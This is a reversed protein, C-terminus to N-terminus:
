KGAVPTRDLRRLTEAAVLGFVISGLFNTLSTKFPIVTLHPLRLATGAAYMFFWFIVGFFLGKLLYYRSTVGFYLYAFLIGIFASFALQVLQAFLEESLFVPKRGFIMIGAWDLYRMTSFNSYYMIFNLIDMAIGAVTGTILGNVFRDKLHSVEAQNLM